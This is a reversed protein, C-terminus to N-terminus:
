VGERSRNLVLTSRVAPTEKPPPCVEAFAGTLIRSIRLWQADIEQQAAALADPSRAAARRSLLPKFFSLFHKELFDAIHETTHEAFTQRGLHHQKAWNELGLEVAAKAKDHDGIGAALARLDDKITENDM